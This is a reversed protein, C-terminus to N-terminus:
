EKICVVIDSINSGTIGTMIAANIDLMTSYEDHNTLSQHLNINLKKALALNTEDVLSGAVDSNDRGDSALAAFVTGPTMKLLAALGMEQNRGGSGHASKDLSVVSEGGAILCENPKVEKVIQSAIDKAEGQFAANWIKPKLGLDRAKESMADLALKNSCFLINDVHEFYKADKPTEIFGCKEMSCKELIKHKDMIQMADQITTTDRVTPGSAVMSMDDGPVDSFILSLVHAPYALRALGGGKINSFHKRVTNMETIDAGSDMLAKTIIREEEVSIVQPSTMLSSGGGGIVCIVLDQETLNNLMTIIENTATVNATSPLPHTGVRSVIKKLNGPVIDIVVGGALRDLMVREIGEAAEVVMKGAGVVVVKQFKRLDYKNSNIYLADEKQNYSFNDRMLSETNIASLGAELIRLVQKRSTTTALHEYNKIIM